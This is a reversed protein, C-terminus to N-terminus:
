GDGDKRGGGNRGQIRAEVRGASERGGSRKGRGESM